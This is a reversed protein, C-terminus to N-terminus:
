LLVVEDASKYGEGVIVDKSTDKAASVAKGGSKRGTITVRQGKLWARCVAAVNGRFPLGVM